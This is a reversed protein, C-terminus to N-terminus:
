VEEAERVVEHSRLVTKTEPDEGLLSIDVASSESHSIALGDSSEEDLFILFEESMLAEPLKLLEDLYSSLMGKKQSIVETTDKRKMKNEHSKQTSKTAKDKDGKAKEFQKLFRSYDALPIVPLNTRPYKKVLRVHFECFSSYSRQLTYSLKERENWIRVTYLHFDFITEDGVCIYDTVQVHIQKEELSESSRGVGGGGFSSSFSGRNPTTPTDGQSM